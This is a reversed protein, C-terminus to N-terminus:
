LEENLEKQEQQAQQLQQKLVEVNREVKRLATQKDSLKRNAEALQGEAQGLKARKPGVV